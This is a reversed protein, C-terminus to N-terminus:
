SYRRAADELDAGADPLHRLLEPAGPRHVSRRRRASSAPEELVEPLSERGVRNEGCRGQDAGPAHSAITLMLTRSVDFAVFGLKGEIAVQEGRATTV